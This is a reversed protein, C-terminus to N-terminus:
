RFMMLDTPAESLTQIFEATQQEESKAESM